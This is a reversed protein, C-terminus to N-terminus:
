GREASEILDRVASPVYNEPETPTGVTGVTASRMANLVKERKADRVQRRIRAVTQALVVPSVMGGLEDAAIKAIQEKNNEDVNAWDVDVDTKRPAEDPKRRRMVAPQLLAFDKPMEVTVAIPEALRAALIANQAKLTSILADKAAIVEFHHERSIWPLKWM